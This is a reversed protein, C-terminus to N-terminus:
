SLLLLDAAAKSGSYARSPRLPSPLTFKGTGEISGYVEDTSIQVFLPVGHKRGMELVTVAGMVNTEVFPMASAIARDVHSEAAFNVIADFRTSALARAVSPADCIDGKVFSGVGEINKPNGAYTLLDYILVSHGRAIALHAFNAGIFGAAGTVLINM